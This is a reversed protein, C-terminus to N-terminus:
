YAQPSQRPNKFWLPVFPVFFERHPGQQHMANTRPELGLPFKAKLSLHAAVTAIRMVSHVKTDKTGKHNLVFDRDIPEVTL